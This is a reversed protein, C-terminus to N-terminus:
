KEIRSQESRVKKSPNKIRWLYFITLLIYFVTALIIFIKDQPYSFVGNTFILFYIMWILIIKILQNTINSKFM